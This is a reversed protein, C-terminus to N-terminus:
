PKLLYGFVDEMLSDDLGDLVLKSQSSWSAAVSVRARVADGVSARRANNENMVMGVSKRRQHHSEPTERLSMRSVMASTSHPLRRRESQGAISTCTSTPSLLRGGSSHSQSLPPSASVDPQPLTLLWRDISSANRAHKSHNIRSSTSDPPQALTSSIFSASKTMSPHAGPPGRYPSDYDYQAKPVKSAETDLSPPTIAAPPLEDDYSSFDFDLWSPGNSKFMAGSRKTAKTTFDLPPLTHTAETTSIAAGQTIDFPMREYIVKPRGVAAVLLSPIPSTAARRNRRGGSSPMLYPGRAKSFSRDVVAQASSPIAM